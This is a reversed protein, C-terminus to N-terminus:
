KNVVHHCRTCLDETAMDAEAKYNWCRECKKFQTLEITVDDIANADVSVAAVNLWQALKALSLSTPNAKLIVHAENNKKLLGAKRAEELKNYISDKLTFFQNFLAEDNFATFPELNLWDELHVSEYKKYPLFSYAEECTHPMIPALAIIMNKVIYYLVTQIQNRRVSTLADCYMPDKIIDFYWASLDLTFQNVTKVITSFQYTTYAESIKNLVKHLENLVFQDELEFSTALGHEVDLDNIMSLSYKFLTNRIRRYIESIQKLINMGFRQDEMYETSAVWLRFVDAGYEDFVKQPDIVNGVSKSMKFGKEDLTFGHQLIAKYPAKKNYITGTILSSNFWGRYQDSGELYIDAPYDFGWERLMMHSSGSDFWVDMIDKEKTYAKGTALYKETLFKEVPWEFWVDTGNEALISIINQILEVDYIPEHNEDFIMPIPVGWVRQRSICWEVRKSIMEIMRDTNKQSPSKVDEKLTKIVDAQIKELNVFWQATARYIVPKKTRWDHAASHVIKEQKLLANCAQLREIVIPNADVYFMGELEADNISADYKGFQNIPTYPSINYKKCALYDDMGFGPANHVLGTGDEASVYEALIIPSTRDIFPHKYQINELDTGHLEKVITIDSKNINLNAAFKDLLVKAIVYHVGNVAIVLYELNPHVAIALNAPITWPTTTWIVFYTNEPLVSNNEAKFSVYISHSEVDAYEIEAEALASQSSWSWYVPKLDRFILNQRVMELYLNLQQIEFEPYLTLYDHKLDSLLGIRRFQEKQNAVQSLAYEKCKQRTEVVSDNTSKGYKKLMAIEIPLGHTDWGPIFPANFGQLNKSRVIIDKLTKNLAHGVHLNGNAYPPGDHLFFLPKHQNKLLVKSYLDSALWEQQIKPEKTKLNAKMEFKTSPMNLTNKYDM